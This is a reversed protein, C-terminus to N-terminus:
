GARLGDFWDRLNPKGDLEDPGGYLSALFTARHSARKIGVGDCFHGGASVARTVMAPHLAEDALGYFLRMPSGYEWYSARNAALQRLFRGAVESTPRAMFGEILLGEPMPLKDIDFDFAYDNLFKATAAYYEPRVAAKVLGDLRYYTEYSALLMATTLCIWAPRPPFPTPEPAPFSVGGAWFMFAESLDNFPSSAGAARVPVGTRQLEQRLWQTNLGGQSWGNLFLEAPELGLQRLGQLGANLIDVCTQTTADKVAYGEQRNGRYPGKGLYDAAIVAYGHSAFRHLNFLTETSDYGDTMVEGPAALSGIRSPVQVFSVITGHQWSVVPIPGKAKAPVALLGSVKVTEGTEPVQTFTTIRHLDVDAGAGHRAPDFPPLVKGQNFIAYGTAALEDLRARSMRVQDDLIAASAPRHGASMAGLALAAGTAGKLFGRRGLPQTIMKQWDERRM